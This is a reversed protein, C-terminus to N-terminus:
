PAAAPAVDALPQSSELAVLVAESLFASFLAAGAKEPSVLSLDAHTGPVAPLGLEHLLQSKAAPRLHGVAHRLVMLVATSDDTNIRLEGVPFALDDNSIGLSSLSVPTPTQM